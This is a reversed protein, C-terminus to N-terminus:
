TPLLAGLPVGALSRVERALHAQDAYGASGAVSALPEGGRALALAREFRLVRALTKPGYGFAPLCRRQLQRPSLGVHAATAAVTHGARLARAVARVIPDPPGTRRLRDVMAAAIGRAPDAAAAMAATLARADRTPWVQELPFRADRLEDAPVGLVTPAWGPQFRVGIYSRAPGEPVQYAATDPGAVLLSGDSWILDLCGDPLVRHAATSPTASRTWVVAGPLDFPLERYV